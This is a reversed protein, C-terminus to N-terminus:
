EDDGVNGADIPEFTTGTIVYALALITVAVIVALVGLVALATILAPM